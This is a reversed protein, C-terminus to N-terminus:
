EAQALAIAYRTVGDVKHKIIAHGKKRLGTLAARTTHSQWGTAEVLAALSAGGERKLLDLVLDQKTARRERHGTGDANSGADIYPPRAM